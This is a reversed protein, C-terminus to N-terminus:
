TDRKKKNKGKNLWAAVSGLMGTLMSGLFLWNLTQDLLNTPEGELFSVTGPHAPLLEDKDTSPVVIHGAEPLTTVVNAKTALLVRTLERAAHNSLSAQAALLVKASITTVKEPPIAPSGSFAGVSIEAEDYVAFRDTISPAEVLDVFKPPRRTLKRFAEVALAIPGAGSPGIVLLAAVQRLQQLDSLENLGFRVVSKDDFGYFDLVAKAMPDIGSEDALVGIKKGKLKSINDIPSGAPVLVAAYITRLVLISRGGTVAPDDSRVVAADVAREKFAQASARLGPTEVLFLRIGAHEAGIEQKFATLFVESKSDVPPTAIRVTQSGFLVWPYFKWVFFVGTGACIVLASIIAAAILRSVVRAEEAMRLEGLSHSILLM